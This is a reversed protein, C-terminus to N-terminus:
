LVEASDVLRMRLRERASVGLHVTYAARAAVEHRLYAGHVAYTALPACAFGELVFWRTAFRVVVVRRDRGATFAAGMEVLPPESQCLLELDTTTTSM